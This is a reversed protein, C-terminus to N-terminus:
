NKRKFGLDRLGDLIPPYYNEAILRGLFLMLLQFTQIVQKGKLKEHINLIFSPRKSAQSFIM